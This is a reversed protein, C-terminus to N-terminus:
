NACQDTVVTLSLGQSKKGNKYNEKRQVRKVKEKRDTKGRKRKKEIGEERREIEERTMNVSELLDRSSIQLKPNNSVGSSYVMM